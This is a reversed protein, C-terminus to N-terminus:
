KKPKLTKIYEYSMAFYPALEDTKELLSEPVLVYEKQVLGYADFLKTGYKDIFEEKVGNPLRLAVAGTPHVFSFMHGNFATNPLTKGKREVEPHSAVMRDYLAVTEPPADSTEKKTAM